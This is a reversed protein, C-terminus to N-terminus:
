SAPCCVGGMQGPPATTTRHSHLARGWRTPIFFGQNSRPNKINVLICPRNTGACVLLRENKSRLPTLWFLALGVAESAWPQHQIGANHQFFM